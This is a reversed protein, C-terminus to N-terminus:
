SPSLWFRTCAMKFRTTQRRMDALEDRLSGFRDSAHAELDPMDRTVANVRLVTANVIQDMEGWDVRRSMRDIDLKFEDLPPAHPFGSLVAMHDRYLEMFVLKVNGPVERDDVFHIRGVMLYWHSNIDDVFEQMARRGGVLIDVECYAQDVEARLRREESLLFDCMRNAVVSGAM